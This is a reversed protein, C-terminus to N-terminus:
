PIPIYRVWGHCSKRNGTAMSSMNGYNLGHLKCFDKLCIINTVEGQPSVLVYNKVHSNKMQLRSNMSHKKGKMPSPIGKKAMSIKKRFEDTHVFGKLKGKMSKSRKKITELSQKKGLHSIVLKNRTEETIPAAPKRGVQSKKLTHIRKKYLETGQEVGHKEIFWQLSLFGKRAESMKQKSEPSWKKGLNGKTAKGGDGVNCLDYGKQRLCSIIRNEWYFAVHEEVNNVVKKYKLNLGGSLIKKIKNYLYINNNPIKGLKTKREHITMRRKTGKGVYFPKNNRPDILLYTYFNHM